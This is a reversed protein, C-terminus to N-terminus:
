NRWNCDDEGIPQGPPPDAPRPVGIEKPNAEFRKIQAAGFQYFARLSAEAQTQASAWERLEGLKASATARVQVSARENAVLSMLDYLVVADTARQVQAALGAVPAAMWTAKVLRDIVEELGPLTPDEAHYQV